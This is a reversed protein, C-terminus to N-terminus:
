GEVPGKGANIDNDKLIYLTQTSPEIVKTIADALKPIDITLVNDPKRHRVRVHISGRNRHKDRMATICVELESDKLDMQGDSLARELEEQPIYIHIGGSVMGNKDMKRTAKTWISAERM